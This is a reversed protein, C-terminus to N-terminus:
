STHLTAGFTNSRSDHFKVHINILMHLQAGPTEHKSETQQDTVPDFTVLAKVLFAEGGLLKLIRQGVTKMNQRSTLCSYCIVGLSNPTVPDFTLIVPAKVLFLKDAWYSLFGKVVTKMNQM